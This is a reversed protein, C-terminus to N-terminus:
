HEVTFAESNERLTVASCAWTHVLFVASGQLGQGQGVESHKRNVFNIAVNFHFSKPSLGGSLSSFIKIGLITRAKRTISFDNNTLQDILVPRASISSM